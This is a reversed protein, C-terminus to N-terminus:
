SIRTAPDGSAAVVRLLEQNGYAPCSLKPWGTQARGMSILGSDCAQAGPGHALIRTVHSVASRLAMALPAIYTCDSWVCSVDLQSFRSRDSLTCDRVPSPVGKRSTHDDSAPEAGLVCGAHPSWMGSM